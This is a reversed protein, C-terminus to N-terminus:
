ADNGEDASDECEDKDQAPLSYRPFPLGRIRKMFISVPIAKADELTKEEAVRFINMLIASVVRFASPPGNHAIKIFLRKRSM